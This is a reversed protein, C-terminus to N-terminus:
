FLFDHLYMLAFLKLEIKHMATMNQFTDSLFECHLAHKECHLWTQMNIREQMVALHICAIMTKIWEPWEYSDICEFIISWDIAIAFYHLLHQQKEIINYLNYDIM